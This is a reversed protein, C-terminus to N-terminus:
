KSMNELYPFHPIKTKLNVMKPLKALTSEQLNIEFQM